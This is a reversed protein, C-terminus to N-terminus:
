GNLTANDDDGRMSIRGGGLELNEGVQTSVERADLDERENLLRCWLVMSSVITWEGEGFIKRAEELSDFTDIGTKHYEVGEDVQEGALTAEGTQTEGMEERVEVLSEDLAVNGTKENAITRGSPSMSSWGDHFSGVMEGGNADATEQEGGVGDFGITEEQAVGDATM